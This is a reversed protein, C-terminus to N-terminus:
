DSEEMSCNFEIEGIYYINSNIEIICGRLHKEEQTIQLTELSFSKINIDIINVIRMSLTLDKSVCQCVSHFIRFM